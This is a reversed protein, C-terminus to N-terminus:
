ERGGVEKERSEGEMVGKGRGREGRERRGEGGMM